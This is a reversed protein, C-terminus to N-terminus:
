QTEYNLFLYVSTYIKYDTKIYACQTSVKRVYINQEQPYPPLDQSTVRYIVANQQGPQRGPGRVDELSIIVNHLPVRSVAVDGGFSPVSSAGARFLGGLFVGTRPLPPVSVHRALPRARLLLVRRARRWAREPNSRARARRRRRRNGRLQRGSSSPCLRRM